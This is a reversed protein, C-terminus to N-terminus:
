TLFVLGKDLHLCLNLDYISRLIRNNFFVLDLVACKSTFHIGIIVLDSLIEDM